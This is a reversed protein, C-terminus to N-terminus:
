LSPANKATSAAPYRFLGYKIYPFECNFLVLNAQSTITVIMNIGFSKELWFYKGPLLPVGKSLKNFPLTVRSIIGVNQNIKIRTAIATKTEPRIQSHATISDSKKKKSQPQRLAKGLIPREKPGGLGGTKTSASRRDQTKRSGNGKQIWITKWIM